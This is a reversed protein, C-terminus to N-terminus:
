TLTKPVEINVLTGSDKASEVDIEGNIMNVRSRVNKLGIGNTVVSRDFGVGDDEISLSLTDGHDMLNVFVLGSKAHKQVNNLLEQTIRFLNVEIAPDYRPELDIHNFRVQMGSREQLNACTQKLAELLGLADLVDPMLDHSINRVEKIAGQLNQKLTTIDRQLL